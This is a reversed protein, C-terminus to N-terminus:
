AKQFVEVATAALKRPSLGYRDELYAQSGSISPELASVGRRVVRCDLGQEAVTECVLSGLGGDISHAEVTIVHRFRTLLAALNRPPQAGLNDVLAVAADIGQSNLEKAAAVANVAATGLAILLLDSGDRVLQAEDLAFRGDLGEVLSTNDKSLRFYVPEPLANAATLAAPIQQSDGAAIIRIARQARLVAIDELAYHSFGNPGYEFGGGVGVIRVPLRHQIPGNRLFEYPRLVAFPAISYVFPTFGGEALGTALGLMNQEAVGVNFFRDPFREAFPEVATYGLDGTLFVIRPDDEAMEVLTEIFAARM